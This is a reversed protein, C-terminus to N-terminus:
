HLALRRSEYGDNAGIDLIVSPKLNTSKVIQVLENIRKKQIDQLLKKQKM